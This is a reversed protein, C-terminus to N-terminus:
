KRVQHLEALAEDYAIDLGRCEDQTDWDEGEFAQIIEIYFNKRHISNPIAKKSAHIIESFLSSGSAWGM